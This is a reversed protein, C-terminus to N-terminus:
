HPILRYSINELLDLHLKAWLRYGRPNFHMDNRYYFEDQQSGVLASKLGNYSDLYIAGLSEALQQIERHPQTSWVSKGELVNPYQLYHPVTTIVIKIKKEAAWQILERLIAKTFRVNEKTKNTWEFRCWGWPDSAMEISRHEANRTSTVTMEVGQNNTEDIANNSKELPKDNVPHDRLRGINHLFKRKLQGLLHYSYTHKYLFIRFKLMLSAKVLTDGAWVYDSESVNGPFIAWPKGSEDLKLNMRYRSDDYVDTMDVNVVLLDPSYDALYYRALIYLILPSYSSTGTNVVEFRWANRSQQKNLADEVISPVSQEMPATGETFSDGLYFIRYVNSPKEKAIDYREIWGQGNYVHIYPESYRPDSRTWEFHDQRGNPRWIHHLRPHNVVSDIPRDAFLYGAFELLGLSIFLLLLVVVVTGAVLRSRLPKDSSVIQRMVAIVM